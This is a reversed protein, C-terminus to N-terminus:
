RPKGDLRKLHKEIEDLTMDSRGDVRNRTADILSYGYESHRLQLGLAFARRGLGRRRLKRAKAENASKGGDDPTQEDRRRYAAPARKREAPV